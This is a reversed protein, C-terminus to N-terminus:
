ALLLRCNLIILFLVLQTFFVLLSQLHFRLPISSSLIWAKNLTPLLRICFSYDECGPELPFHYLSSVKATFGPQIHSHAVFHEVSWTHIFEDVQYGIVVGSDGAKIGMAYESDVM